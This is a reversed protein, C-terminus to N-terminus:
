LDVRSDSVSVFIYQRQDKTMDIYLMICSVADNYLM